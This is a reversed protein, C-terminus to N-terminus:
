QWLSKGGVFTTMPTFSNKSQVKKMYSRRSRVEQPQTDKPQADEGDGLAYLKVRNRGDNENTYDIVYIMKQNKLETLLKGVTKPPVGTRESLDLRSAPGQMLAKFITVMQVINMDKGKFVHLHIRQM